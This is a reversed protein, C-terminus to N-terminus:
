LILAAYECPYRATIQDSFYVDNKSKEWVACMYQTSLSKAIRETVNSFSKFTLMPSGANYDISFLISIGNQVPQWATTAINWSLWHVTAVNACDSSCTLKVGRNDVNPNSYVWVEDGVKAKEDSVKVEVRCETSGM